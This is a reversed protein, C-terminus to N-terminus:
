GAQGFLRPLDKWTYDVFKNQSWWNMFANWRPNDRRHKWAWTLIRLSNQKVSRRRMRKSYRHQGGKVTRAKPTIIGKYKLWSAGSMFLRMTIESDCITNRGQSSSPLLVGSPQAGCANWSLFQEVVFGTWAGYLIGNDRSFKLCEDLGRSNPRKGYDEKARRGARPRTLFPNVTTSVSCAVAGTRACDKAARRLFRLFQATPMTSLTYTEEVHDVYSVQVARVNDDVLWLMKVEAQRALRLLWPTARWTGAPMWVTWGTSEAAFPLYGPLEPDSLCLGVVYPVHHKTLWSSIWKRMAFPRGFSRPDGGHRLSSYVRRGHSLAAYM